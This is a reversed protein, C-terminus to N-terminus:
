RDGESDSADRSAGPSSTPAADSPLGVGRRVAEDVTGDDERVPELYFRARRAQNGEVGFIVVGRVLHPSGDPRTGRMEWESWAENREAVWAVTASLDPVAGFIREWNRRVQDRGRFGRTPHAPTENVYGPAFLSVVADLDHANVARCLEDVWAGPGEGRTGAEM